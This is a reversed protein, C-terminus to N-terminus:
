QIVPIEHIDFGWDSLMYIKSITDKGEQRLTKEIESHNQEIINVFPFVYNIRVLNEKGVLDLALKISINTKGGGTPVDLYFIRKEGHKRLTHCAELLMRTRLANIDEIKEVPMGLLYDKKGLESNYEKTSYFNNQLEVMLTKDIFNIEPEKKESFLEAAFCDAQVLISYWLKYMFFMSDPMRGNELYQSYMHKNNQEVEIDFEGVISQKCANALGISNEDIQKSYNDWVGRSNYRPSQKVDLL